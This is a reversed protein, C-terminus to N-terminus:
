TKSNFFPQMIRRHKRWEHGNVALLNTGWYLSAISSRLFMILSSMQRKNVYWHPKIWTNSSGGGAIQRMVEISNTYLFTTGWVRPEVSIIEKNPKSYVVRKRHRLMRMAEILFGCMSTFRQSWHWHTGLGFLMGLATM